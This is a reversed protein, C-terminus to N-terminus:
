GTRFIQNVVKAAFRTPDNVFERAYRAPNSALTKASRTARRSVRKSCGERVMYNMGYCFVPGHAIDAIATAQGEESEIFLDADTQEYVNAKYRAHNGMSQRTQKDPYDMMILEGYEIGHTSLWTETLDRYKELRATVIYGIEKSPVVNPEVSRVFERYREGDDNERTTPDRCLVGDLDVCWNSLGPHHMVNWEFVRPTPLVQSYTDVYDKGEHSTYVAGYTVDVGRSCRDIERKARTMTAGTNVSDDVVLVSSVSSRDVDSEHRRGTQITYGRGFGELTTLPRDLHLALLNSAMLGSRPIGVVLDIDGPLDRRWRKIDANLHGFTRYNM